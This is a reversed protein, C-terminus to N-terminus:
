TRGCTENRIIISIVSCSNMDIRLRDQDDHCNDADSYIKQVQEKSVISIKFFDVPIHTAIISFIMKKSFFQSQESFLEKFMLAINKMMRDSLLIIHYIIQGTNKTIPTIERFSKAEKQKRYYEESFQLLFIGDKSKSLTTASFV